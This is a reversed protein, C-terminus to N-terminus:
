KADQEKVAGKNKLISKCNDLHAKLSAHENRLSTLISQVPKYKKYESFYDIERKVKAVLVTLDKTYSKALNYHL